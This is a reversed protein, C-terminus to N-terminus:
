AASHAVVDDYRLASLRGLEDSGGPKRLVVFAYSTMWPLPRRLLAEAVRDELRQLPPIREFYSRTGFLGVYHEVEFGIDEFRRLQAATPGRCWRYFAPFKEGRDDVFRGPRLAVLLARALRHPLVRNVVFPLAYLTPFYHFAVGGPRLLRLLNEHFTRPDAIHEALMHSFMVDFPGIGELGPAAIDAVHTQYGTPAKALETDSIDLVTYDLSRERIVELSVVPNAGGGIDCVRRAGTHEILELLFPRFAPFSTRGLGWTVNM